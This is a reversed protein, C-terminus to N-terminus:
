RRQTTELYKLVEEVAWELIDVMPKTGRGPAVIVGADTRLNVGQGVKNILEQSNTSLNGSKQSDGEPLILWAHDQVYRPWVIDDVYGPPDTWFNQPPRDDEGELDVEDSVSSRQPLSTPEPAPGSTVYGSRSERRSKVMDYPAPLFLHVDINEHVPRLVHDKDESEPPSYLLFGELFAITSQVPAVTGENGSGPQQRFLSRLRGGVEKQLQLITGEDVGSDSKENFDQISKLRPPLHGHDRVYSLASSLFKVDIADITDWDQVTKGSATTTYPIRDDPLYFDDEHVIFTFLSENAKSFIRQLLRALTTKGSSSPGSIGIVATQSTM